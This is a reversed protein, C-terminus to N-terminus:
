QTSWLLFAEDDLDFYFRGISTLRNHTLQIDSLEQSKASITHPGQVGAQNIEMYRLLLNWRHGRSQVLTSGISYSLGVMDMRHGM